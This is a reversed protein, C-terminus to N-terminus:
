SSWGNQKEIILPFHVRELNPIGASTKGLRSLSELIDASFIQWSDFSSRTWCGFNWSQGLDEHSYLSSKSCCNMSRTLEQMLSVMLSAKAKYVKQRLKKLQICMGKIIRFFFKFSKNTWKTLITVYLIIYARFCKM